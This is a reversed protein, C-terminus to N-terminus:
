DTKWGTHIAQRLAEAEPRELVGFFAALREDTAALRFSLTAALNKIVKLIASRNAATLEDFTGRHLLALQCDTSAVVSAIAPRRALVEVEGFVSPASLSGIVHPRSHHGRKLIDVTGGLLIYIPHGASDGEEIIREKATATRTVLYSALEELEVSTLGRFLPLSALDAAAVM